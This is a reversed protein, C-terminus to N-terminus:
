IQHHGNDSLSGKSCEIRRQPQESKDRLAQPPFIAAPKGRSLVLLIPVLIVGILKILNALIWSTVARFFRLMKLKLVCKILEDGNQTNVM